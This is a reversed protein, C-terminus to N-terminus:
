RLGELRSVSSKGKPDHVNTILQILALMVVPVPSCGALFHTENVSVASPWSPVLTIPILDKVEKNRSSLNLSPLVVSQLTVTSWDKGEPSTAPEVASSQVTSPGM